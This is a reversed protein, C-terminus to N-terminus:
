SVATQQGLNLASAMITNLMTFVQAAAQYSREFLTM